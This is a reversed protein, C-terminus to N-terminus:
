SADDDLMEQLTANAAKSMDENMRRAELEAEVMSSYSAHAKGSETHFVCYLGTRKDYDAYYRDM